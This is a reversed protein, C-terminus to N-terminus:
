PVDNIISAPLCLNTLDYHNITYFCDPSFLPLTGRSLMFLLTIIGMTTSDGHPLM